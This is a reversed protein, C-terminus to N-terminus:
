RSQRSMKESQKGKDEYLKEAPNSPNFENQM